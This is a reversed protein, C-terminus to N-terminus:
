ERHQVLNKNKLKTNRGSTPASSMLKQFIRAKLMTYINRKYLWLHSGQHCTSSFSSHPSSSTYMLLLPKPQLVFVNLDQSNSFSFFWNLSVAVNFRISSQQHFSKLHLDWWKDQIRTVMLYRYCQTKFHNLLSHPNAKEM